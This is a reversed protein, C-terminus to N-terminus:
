VQSNGSAYSKDLQHTRTSPIPTSPKRVAVKARDEASGRSLSSGADSAAEDNPAVPEVVGESLAM